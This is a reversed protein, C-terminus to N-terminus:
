IVDRASRRLEPEREGSVSAALQPLPDLSALIQVMIPAMITSHGGFSVPASAFRQVPAVSGGTTAPVAAPAVDGAYQVEGAGVGEHKSTLQALVDAASKAKGGGYFISRNANAAQPFIDAASAKPTAEATAILKIAAKPGMFHAVYLEGASVGRGLASEMDGRVANTMEGAMLAATKADKRLALIERRMAPDAVRFRGNSGVEIADAYNKLGHEGGFEKVTGLWTQEIFQFLGTASSSAAEAKPNLSSERMATTLLYDFDTGTEDAARRLASLVGDANPPITPRLLANDTAANSYM